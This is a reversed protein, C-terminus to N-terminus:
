PGFPAGFSPSLGPISEGPTLERLDQEMIQGDPGYLFTGAIRKGDLVIRATLRNDLWMEDLPLEDKSYWRPDIDETKEPEGRFSPILYIDVGLNWSPHHPSLCVVHGVKQWDTIDVRIEELVERKLAEEPSEGEEVGGGIGAVIMHGLNDSVRTRVGLLVENDRILYGIVTKRIPPNTALYNQTKSM